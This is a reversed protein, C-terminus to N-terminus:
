NYQFRDVHKQHREDIEDSILRKKLKIEEKAKLIKLAIKQFAGQHPWGEHGEGQGLDL